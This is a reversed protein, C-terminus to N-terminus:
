RVGCFCSSNVPRGLQVKVRLESLIMDSDSPLAHLITKKFVSIKTTEDVSNLFDWLVSDGDAAVGM